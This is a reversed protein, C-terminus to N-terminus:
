KVIKAIQGIKANSNTTPFCNAFVLDTAGVERALSIVNGKWYRYDIEYITKYHDVLYPLLANGYSEKIIILVQNNGASPNSFVTLPNDGGAFCM